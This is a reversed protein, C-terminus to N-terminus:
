SRPAAARRLRDNIAVGLGIEPIPGVAISKVQMEDFFHLAAFLKATAETLDGSESLNVDALKDQDRGFGLFAEGPKKDTANLRVPCSPAYHSLLMGPSSVTGDDEHLAIDGIVAELAEQTVAGPRLLVPEGSNFGVVTSEVGVPCPGGDLIGAIKDGLGNMVHEATTPSISGSPNASPGALPRNCAELFKLALRHGPVRIALTDLGASALKSIKCDPKRPLVLTLAGPWFSNALQRSVENFNVYKEAAELSPVHIILPNFSPRGKAAFIRAVATEDLANAGLGYVTETPFAVLNGSRIEAAASELGANDPQYLKSM